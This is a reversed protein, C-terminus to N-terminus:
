CFHVCRSGNAKCLLPTLAPKSSRRTGRPTQVLYAGRNWAIRM